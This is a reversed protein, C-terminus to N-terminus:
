KIFDLIIDLIQPSPIKLSPCYASYCNLNKDILQVGGLSYNFSLRLSFPSLDDGYFTELPTHYFEHQIAPTVKQNQYFSMNTPLLRWKTEPM